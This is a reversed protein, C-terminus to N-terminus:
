KVSFSTLCQALIMVFVVYLWVLVGGYLTITCTRVITYNPYIPLDIDAVGVWCMYIYLYQKSVGLLIIVQEQSALSSCLSM